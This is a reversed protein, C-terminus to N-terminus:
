ERAGSVPKEGLLSNMSDQKNMSSQIFNEVQRKQFSENKTQKKFEYVDFSVDLERKMPSSLASKELKSNEVLEDQLETYRYRQDHM